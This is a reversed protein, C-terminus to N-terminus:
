ITGLYKGLINLLIFYVIGITVGIKMMRNLKNIAKADESFTFYGRLHCYCSLVLAMNRFPINFYVGIGMLFNTMPHEIFKASWPILWYASDLLSFLHNLFVGVIMWEASTKIHNPTFLAEKARSKWLFLFWGCLFLGDITLIVSLAEGYNNL